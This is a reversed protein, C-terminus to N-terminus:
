KALHKFVKAKADNYQRMLEQYDKFMTSDITKPFGNLNNAAVEFDELAKIAAKTPKKKSTSVDMDVFPTIRNPSSM